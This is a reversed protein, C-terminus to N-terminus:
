TRSTEEHRALLSAEGESSCGFVRSDARSSRDHAALSVEIPSMLLGTQKLAVCGWAASTTM